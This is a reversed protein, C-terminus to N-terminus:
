TVGEADALTLAEACSADRHLKTALIHDFGNEGALNVNAASILGRDAVVTIRGVKFREALDTLVGPLTAVDSTNGAFVHHAIPIGDGTCLLGIMIQPRDSRHYRSYGFARSPFRDSPQGDTEFYTSTLDYCVLSLDMNTLDCLRAYLEVETATKAEAVADVARYYQALAPAVWGGGMVVDREVWETLRRNSCPDTLRNAFVAEGLV